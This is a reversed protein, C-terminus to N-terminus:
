GSSAVAFRTPNKAVSGFARARARGLDWACFLSTESKKGDTAYFERHTDYM